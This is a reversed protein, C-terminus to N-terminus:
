ESYNFILEPYGQEGIAILGDIHTGPAITKGFIDNSSLNRSQKNNAMGAVIANGIGIALPIPNYTVRLDVNGNIDQEGYVGIGSIGYFLVYNEPKQRVKKTYFSHDIVSISRGTATTISMKEKQLQVPKNSVNEIKVALLKLDYKREKEAYRENHEAFQVDYLYSVKLSGTTRARNEYNSSSPTISYYKKACSSLSFLTLLIFLNKVFLQM